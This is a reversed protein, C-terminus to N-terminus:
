KSNTSGKPFHLYEPVYKKAVDREMVNGEAVQGPSSSLLSTPMGSRAHLGEGRGEGSVVVRDTRPM